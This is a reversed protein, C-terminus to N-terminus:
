MYNICMSVQVHMYKFVCVVHVYTYLYTDVCMYVYIYKLPGHGSVFCPSASIDITVIPVRTHQIRICQYRSMIGYISPASWVIYKSLYRISVCIYAYITRLYLTPTYTTLHRSGYYRKYTHKRQIYIYIYICINSCIYHVTFHKTKAKRIAHCRYITHRLSPHSWQLLNPSGSLHQLYLVAWQLALIGRRIMWPIYIYTLYICIHVYIHIYTYEHTNTDKRIYVNM